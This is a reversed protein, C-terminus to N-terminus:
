ILEACGVGSKGYGNGNYFMFHRGNHEALVGFCQMESDWADGSPIFNLKEDRRQWSMGDLSEAYGLRYGVSMYRTSYLMKYMSNEKWIYPRGFGHIDPDDYDMVIQGRGPWVKGDASTLHRLRYEPIAKGEYERWSDGGLYWMRYLDNEKIVFPATRVMAEGETRDIIPTHFVRSFSEGGDRSIALGAFLYYRVKVGLQFGVYYLFLGEPTDIISIPVVGNDDFYGPAGIDLVPAASYGLVRNPQTADVDAYGIRSVGQADCCGLFIRFTDGRKLVTPLMAHSDAWNLRGEPAFILGYNKWQMM